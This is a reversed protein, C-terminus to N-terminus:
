PKPIPCGKLPRTKMSVEQGALVQTVADRAFGSGDGQFPGLYRLKGTKDYVLATTTKDIKLGSILAQGPDRLVNLKIGQGTLFRKIKEPTDSPHPDVAYVRVKDAGQKSYEALDREAGRCSGCQSCWIVLVVAETGPQATLEPISHAQGNLDRLSQASASCVMIGMLCAIFALRKKM